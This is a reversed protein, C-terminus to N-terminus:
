LRALARKAPPDSWSQTRCMPCLPPPGNVVIGYGCGGCRLEVRSPSRRADHTRQQQESAM